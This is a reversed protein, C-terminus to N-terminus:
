NGNTVREVGAKAAKNEPDVGLAKRYSKTAAAKDGAQEQLEGLIVLADADRPEIAVAIRAEVMAKAPEKVRLKRADTLRESFPGLGDLAEQPAAIAPAADVSLRFREAAGARDGEKLLVRGYDYNAEPMKPDFLLTAELEEKYKAASGVANYCVALAYHTDSADRRYRLAQKFNSIADEYKRQEMLATGVYFYATELQADSGAAVKGEQQDIVKQFYGQGTAWEKQKMYIFGLGSLAPAYDKRVKLVTKYQEAAERDRGAVSLAQALQMRTDINNPNKRLTAILDNIARTAPMAQRTTRSQQWVSYGLWGGVVIVLAAVAVIAADIPRVRKLQLM